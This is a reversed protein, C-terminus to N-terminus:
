VLPKRMHIIMEVGRHVVGASDVFEWRDEVPAPDIPVYGLRAYLRMAAANKEPDVGLRMEDHGDDKAMREMAAILLRGYGHGRLDPRIFLDLMQPLHKMKPWSSPQALVLVGFGVVLGGAEVLLYRLIRGDADRIRDRHIADGPRVADLVPLDSATADRILIAKTSPKDAMKWRGWEITRNVAIRARWDAATRELDPSKRDTGAIGDLFEIVDALRGEILNVAVARTPMTRREGTQKHRMLFAHFAHIVQDVAIMKQAPMKAAKWRALFGRFASEAAGQSLQRRTWTRRYAGWTTTWGCAPCRLPEEEAGEGDRHIVSERSERDCRPCRVIGRNAEAVALISECRMAFRTGVDDLLAEDIVGAAESEYLRRIPEKPVRHAWRVESAGDTSANEDPSM